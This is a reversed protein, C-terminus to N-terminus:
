LAGGFSLLIRPRLGSGYLVDHLGREYVEYSPQEDFYRYMVGVGAGIVMHKYLLVQYGGDIAGGWADYSTDDPKDLGTTDVPVRYQYRYSGYLVSGGLFWGEPGYLGTYYRYGLEVGGGTIQDDIGPIAFYYHPSVIVGHHPALMYELNASFLGIAVGLPNMEVAVTKMPEGEPIFWPPVKGLPSAEGEARAPSAIAAAAAALGLALLRRRLM